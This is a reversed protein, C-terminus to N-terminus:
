DQSADPQPKVGPPPLLAAIRAALNRLRAARGVDERTGHRDHLDAESILLQVDDLTFGFQQGYLAM